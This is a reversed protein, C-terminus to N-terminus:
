VELRNRNPNGGMGSKVSYRHPTIVIAPDTIEGTPMPEVADLDGYKARLEDLEGYDLARQPCTGVCAPKEGPLDVCFNCKVMKGANPDYQPAGYPCSFACSGCGICTSEDILVVGDEERKHMAGTPCVEVCQPSVCHMCAISVFYTFVGSPVSYGDVTNWEGGGYEWVRRLRVGLPANHKDKCALECSKCGVCASADFYFALQNAM